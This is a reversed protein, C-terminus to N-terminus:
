TGVLASRFRPVAGADLYGGFEPAIYHDLYKQFDAEPMELWHECLRALMARDHAVLNPFRDYYSNPFRGGPDFYLARRRAGLAEVTTSTYAISITLDAEAIVAGPAVDAGLPLCRPHELLRDLSAGVEPSFQSRFEKLENKPKFLLLSAAWQPHDLMAALADFFERADDEDYPAGGGFTGDFVAVKRTKAQSGLRKRIVANMDALSRVHASWLPGWVHYARSNGRMMRTFNEDRIGWHVEHDYGLYTWEQQFRIAKPSAPEIFACPDNISHVYYWSECGAARLRANRFLSEFHFHNYAVYHRPRWRELLATWRFYELWGRAAVELFLKPARVASAAFGVWAKLGRVLLECFLFRISVHRFASRGGIDTWCYQRRDFEWRYSAAVPKEIVFLTNGGHLQQHDLLWDIERSGAGPFGWDSAYVRISVQVPRPVPKLRTVRRVGLVVWFPLLTLIGAWKLWELGSEARILGARLGNAIQVGDPLAWHVGALDLWAAAAMWAASPHFEVRVGAGSLLRIAILTEYFDTLCRLLHKKFAPEVEPDRYLDVLPKVPVRGNRKLMAYVADVAEFALDDAYWFQLFEPFPHWSFQRLRDREVAARFWTTQQVGHIARRFIVVRGGDAAGAVLPQALRGLHEVLVVELGPKLDRGHLLVPRGM